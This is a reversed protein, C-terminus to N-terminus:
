ENIKKEVGHTLSRSTRSKSGKSLSKQLQEHVDEHPYTKSRSRSRHSRSRHSRSRSRVVMKNLEKKIEVDNMIQQQKQRESQQINTIEENTLPNSRKLPIIHKVPKNLNLSFSKHPKGLSMKSRNLSRKARSQTNTFVKRMKDATEKNAHKHNKEFGGCSNDIIIINNPKIKLCYDYYYNIFKDLSIYLSKGRRFIESNEVRDDLRYDFLYNHQDLDFIGQPYPLDDPVLLKNIKFGKKFYYVQFKNRKNSIFRKYDIISNVYTEQYKYYYEIDKKRKNNSEIMFEPVQMGAALLKQESKLFHEVDAEKKQTEEKKKEYMKIRKEFLDTHFERLRQTVTDIQKKQLIENLFSSYKLDNIIKDYEEKESSDMFYSLDNLVPNSIYIVDVKLPASTTIKFREKLGEEHWNLKLDRSNLFTGHLMISLIPRENLLANNAYIKDMYSVIERAKKVNERRIEIPIDSKSLKKYAEIYKVIFEYFYNPPLRVKHGNIVVGTVEIEKLYQRNRYFIYPDLHLIETKNLGSNLTVFRSRSSQSKLQSKPRPLQPQSIETVDKKFWGLM